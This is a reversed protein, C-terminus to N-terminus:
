APRMAEELGVTPAAPVAHRALRDLAASVSALEQEVDDAVAFLGQLRLATVPDDRFATMFEEDTMPKWVGLRRVKKGAPHRV